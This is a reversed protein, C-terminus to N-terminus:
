RAAEAMTSGAMSREVPEESPPSGAPQQQAPSPPTEHAARRERDAEEEMRSAWIVGGLMGGFGLGGWVAVFLGMGIATRWGQGAALFAGGVGLFSAAVGIAVGTTLAKAMGPPEVWATSPDFAESTPHETM